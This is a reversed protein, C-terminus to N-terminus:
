NDLLSDSGEDKGKGKWDVKPTKRTEVQLLHVLLRSLQRGALGLVGGTICAVGVLVYLPYFAELLYLTTTYPWYFFVTLVIELFVIVPAFLYLLIPLPWFLLLLPRFTIISSLFYKLWSFATTIYPILQSIPPDANTLSQAAPGVTSTGTQTVASSAVSM